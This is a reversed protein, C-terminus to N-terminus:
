SQLTGKKRAKLRKTTLEVQKYNTEEGKEM